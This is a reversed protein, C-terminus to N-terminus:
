TTSYTSDLGKDKSYPCSTARAHEDDLWRWTTIKFYGLAKSAISMILPKLWLTTSRVDNTGQIQVFLVTIKAWVQGVRESLDSNTCKEFNRIGPAFTGHDKLWAGLEELLDLLPKELPYAALHEPM